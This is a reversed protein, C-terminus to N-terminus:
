RGIVRRGTSGLAVDPTRRAGTLQEVSVAFEEATARIIRRIPTLPTRGYSPSTSSPAAPPSTPPTSSTSTSPTPTPAPLSNMRARLARYFLRMERVSAFEQAM